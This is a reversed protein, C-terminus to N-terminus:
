ALPVAISSRARRRPRAECAVHVGPEDRHDLHDVLGGLGDGAGASLEGAHNVRVADHQAAAGAGHAVHQEVGNAFCDGLGFRDSRDVGVRADRQGACAVASADEAGGGEGCDGEGPCMVATAPAALYGWEVVEPVDCSGANPRSRSRMLPTTVLLRQRHRGAM